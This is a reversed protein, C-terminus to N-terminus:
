KLLFRELATYTPGKPSLRSQFLVFGNVNLPLGAPEIGHRKIEESLNALNKPTRVRGLTLHATFDRKEKEIGLPQLRSDINQALIHSKEIGGSAGLWVVRPSGAGPFVGAGGVTLTFKESVAAASKLAGKVAPLLDEPRDGIFKLSIHLNEREVWKVDAGAGSLKEIVAFAVRRIEENIEIAAFLRM